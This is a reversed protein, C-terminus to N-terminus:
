YYVDDSAQPKTPLVEDIHLKGHPGNVPIKKKFLLNVRARM